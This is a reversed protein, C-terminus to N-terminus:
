GHTEEQEHLAIAVTLDAVDVGEGAEDGLLPDEPHQECWLEIYLVLDDGSTAILKYRGPTLEAM